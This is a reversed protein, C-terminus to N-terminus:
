SRWLWKRYGKSRMRPVNQSGHLCLVASCISATYLIVHHARINSNREADSVPEDQAVEGPMSKKERVRTEPLDTQVELDSEDQEQLIGDAWAVVEDAAKEVGDFHRSCKRLSGETGKVLHQATLM